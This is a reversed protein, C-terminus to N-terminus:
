EFPYPYDALYEDLLGCEDILKSLEAATMEDQLELAELTPVLVPDEMGAIEAFDVILPAKGGNKAIKAKIIGGAETKGVMKMSQLLTEKMRDRHNELAKAKAMLRQAEEKVAKAEADINKIYKCWGEAKDDYAGSLGEFTDKYVQDTLEEPTMEETMENFSRLENTLEYITM